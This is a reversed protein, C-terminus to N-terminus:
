RVGTADPASGICDFNSLVTPLAEASSEAGAVGVDLSRGAVRFSEFKKGDLVVAEVVCFM